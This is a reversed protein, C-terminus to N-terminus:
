RDASGAAVSPVEPAEPLVPPADADGFSEVGLAVGDATVATM